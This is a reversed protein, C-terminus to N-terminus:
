KDTLRDLGSADLWDTCLASDLSVDPTSHEVDSTTPFCLPIPWTGFLTVQLMEGTQEKEYLFRMEGTEPEYSIAALVYGFDYGYQLGIGGYVDQRTDPGAYITQGSTLRQTADLTLFVMGMSAEGGHPTTQIVCEPVSDEGSPWLVVSVNAPTAAFDDVQQHMPFTPMGTTSGSSDGGDGCATGLSGVSAVLLCSVVLNLLSNKRIWDHSRM